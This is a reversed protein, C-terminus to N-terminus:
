RRDWALHMRDAYNKKNIENDTKINDGGGFVKAYAIM